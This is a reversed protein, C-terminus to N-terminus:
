LHDVGKVGLSALRTEPDRERVADVRNVAVVADRLGRDERMRDSEPARAVRPEDLRDPSRGRDLDGPGADIPVESRDNGGRAIRTPPAGVLRKRISGREGRQEAGGLNATKLA